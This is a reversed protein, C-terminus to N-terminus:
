SGELNLLHTKKKFEELFKIDLEKLNKINFPPKSLDIPRHDGSNINGNLNEGIIDNTILVWRYKNPKLNNRIFKTVLENSLHQLVDKVILLDAGPLIDTIDSQIFRINDKEHLKQVRKIIHSSVDVGLYQAGNWDVLRAFYWDGCGADVISKIKERKIFTELFKRYENTREPTSGTGSWGEKYENWGWTGEKYIKNFTDSLEPPQASSHQYPLLAATLIFAIIRCSSKFINSYDLSFSFLNPIISTM